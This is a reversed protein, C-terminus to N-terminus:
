LVLERFSSISDSLCLALYYTVYPSTFGRPPAKIIIKRVTFASEGPAGQHCLIINCRNKYTCYVSKDNVLINEQGYSRGQSGNEQHYGGDCSLIKMQLSGPVVEGRYGYRFGGESTLKRRKARNTAAEAAYEQEQYNREM